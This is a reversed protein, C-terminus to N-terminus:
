KGRMQRRRALEAAAASQLDTGQNSSNISGQTAEKFSTGRNTNFIADWRGQELGSPKILHSKMYGEHLKDAQNGMSMVMSELSDVISKTTAPAQQGTVYTYAKGIAGSATAQRIDELVRETPAAGTRAKYIQGLIDTYDVPNLNGQGSKKLEQIRNYAVIAADRQEETRALSKDGRLNAVNQRAQTELKDQENNTKTDSSTNAQNAKMELLADRYLKTQDMGYAKEMIPLQKIIDNYSMGETGVGFKSGLQQALQSKKSNVNDGELDDQIAKGRTFGAYAQDKYHSGVNPDNLVRQTYDTPSEQQQTPQNAAVFKHFGSTLPSQMPDFPKPGFMSSQGMGPTQTSGQGMQPTQAAMGQGQPLAAMGQDPQSPQSLFSSPNPNKQTPSFSSVDPGFGSMLQDPNPNAVDFSQPGTPPNGYQLNFEKNKRAEEAQRYANELSLQKRRDLSTNINGLTENINQLGQQTQQFQSPEPQQQEPYPQFQLTM